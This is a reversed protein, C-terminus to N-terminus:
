ESVTIKGGHVFDGPELGKELALYNVLLQVPVISQVSFLFEDPQNILITKINKDALHPDKNTILIVEGNFKAIDEAMKISQSYTVGDAAFLVSKFGEGVMEMPGHRFEGGLSSAAPVRAAEKFMLESQQASAFLPGRGIFQVFNIDESFFGEGNNSINIRDSLFKQTSKILEEIMLVKDEGWKDTLYWGLIILTLIITTYTKTSTMEEKGAKCFLSKKTKLSLFSNEENTLGVCYIDPSLEELLKVVEYSEGSQSICVLLVEKDVLLSHYYILESTNVAFSYIGLSNFLCAAAYSTFYSSGMGTFIINKFKKENILDKIGKLRDIGDQSCYFSLTEELSKPQGLIEELFKNMKKSEGIKIGLEM